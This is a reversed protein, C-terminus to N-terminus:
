SKVGEKFDNWNIKTYLIKITFILNLKHQKWSM